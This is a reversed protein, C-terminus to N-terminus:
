RSITQLRIKRNQWISENKNRRNKRKKSFGWLRTSRSNWNRNLCKKKKIYWKYVVKNKLKDYKYKSFEIDKINVFNDKYPSNKDMPYLDSYLAYPTLGDKNFTFKKM